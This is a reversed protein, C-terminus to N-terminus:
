YDVRVVGKDTVLKLIRLGQLTEEIKEDDNEEGELKKKIITINKKADYHAEIKLTGIAM